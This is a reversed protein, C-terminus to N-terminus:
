LTPPLAYTEVAPAPQEAAALEAVTVQAQVSAVPVDCVAVPGSTETVPFLVRPAVVTLLGREM